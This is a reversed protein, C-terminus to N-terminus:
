YTNLGFLKEQLRKAAAIFFTEDDVPVTHYEQSFWQPNMCINSAIHAKYRIAASCHTISLNDLEEQLEEVDASPVRLKMMAIVRISSEVLGTNESHLGIMLDAAARQVKQEITLIRRTPETGYGFTIAILLILAVAPIRIKM